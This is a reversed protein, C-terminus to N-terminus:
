SFAEKPHFCVVQGPLVYSLAGHQDYVELPKRATRLRRAFTQPGEGKQAPAYRNVGNALQVPFVGHEFHM